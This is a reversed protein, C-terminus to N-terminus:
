LDTEKINQNLFHKITQNYNKDLKELLYSSSKVKFINETNNKLSFNNEDFTQSLTDLCKLPKNYNYSQETPFYLSEKESKDTHNSEKTTALNLSDTNQSISSKSLKLDIDMAKEFERRQRKRKLYVIMTGLFAVGFIFVFSLSIIVFVEVVSIKTITQNSSNRQETKQQQPTLIGNRRENSKQNSLITNENKNSERYLEPCSNKTIKNMLHLKQITEDISKNSYVSISNLIICKECSASKNFYNVLFDPFREFKVKTDLNKNEFSITVSAEINKEFKEIGYSYISALVLHASQPPEGNLAYFLKLNVTFSENEEYSSFHLFFKSNMMRKWFPSMDPLSMDNEKYFNEVLKPVLSRLTNETSEIGPSKLNSFSFKLTDAYVGTAGSFIQNCQSSIPMISFKKRLENEVLYMVANYTKRKADSMQFANECKNDKLGSLQSIILNLINCQFSIPLLNYVKVLIVNFNEPTAPMKVNITTEACINWAKQMYNRSYYLSYGINHEKTVTQIIKCVTAHPMHFIIRNMEKTFYFNSKLLFKRNELANPADSIVLSISGLVAQLFIHIAIQRYCKMQLQM